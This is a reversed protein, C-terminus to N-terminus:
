LEEGKKELLPLFQNEVLCQKIAITLTINIVGSTKHHNGWIKFNFKNISAEQPKILDVIQLIDENDNSDYLKFSSNYHLVTVGDETLGEISYNVTCNDPAFTSFNSNTKIEIKHHVNGKIPNKNSFEDEYNIGGWWEYKKQLTEIEKEGINPLLVGVSRNFRKLINNVDELSCPTSLDSITKDNNIDLSPTSIKEILNPKWTYSTKNVKSNIKEILNKGTYLSM